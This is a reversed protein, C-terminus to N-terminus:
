KKIYELIAKDKKDNWEKKFDNGQNTKLEPMVTCVSPSGNGSPMHEKENFNQAINSGFLSVFVLLVGLSSGYKVVQSTRMSVTKLRMSINADGLGRLYEGAINSAEDRDAADCIIEIITKYKM